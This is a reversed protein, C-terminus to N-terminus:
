KNLENKIQELSLFSTKGNLRINYFLKERKKTPKLLRAVFQSDILIYQGGIEQYSKIQENQNNTQNEQNM